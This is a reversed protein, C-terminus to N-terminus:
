DGAVTHKGGIDDNPKIRTGEFIWHDTRHATFAGSGDMYQGHSKHYGGWLFGVGTLTNEPRGILSHSWLSSLLAYEKRAGYVPDSHYNQKWCTLASGDDESRVQWCCTNGSLFAVNGGEGIFAELNDRMPASWYEDHGVSIVLQRSKLVDPHFELDSNAAYALPIGNNETWTM